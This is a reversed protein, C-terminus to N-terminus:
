SFKLKNKVIRDVIVIGPTDRPVWKFEINRNICLKKVEFYLKKLYKKKVKFKGNLQNIILKSDSFISIKKWRLRRLAYIIAMYEAINNTARGIYYTRKELLKDNKFVVYGVVAPGPNGKSSGDVYISIM